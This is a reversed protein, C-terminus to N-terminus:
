RHAKHLSSVGTSASRKLAKGANWDTTVGLKCVYERQVWCASYERGLGTVRRWCRQGGSTSLCHTMVSTQATTCPTELEHPELLTSRLRGDRAAGGLLALGAGARDAAYKKVTCSREKRPMMQVFGLWSAARATLVADTTALNLLPSTHVM